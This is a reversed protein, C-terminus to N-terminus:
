PRGVEARLRALAVDWPEDMDDDDALAEDIAALHWDPTASESEIESAVERLAEPFPEGREVREAVARLVEALNRAATV